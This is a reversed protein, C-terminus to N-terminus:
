PAGPVGRLRVSRCRLLLRACAGPLRAMVRGTWREVCSKSQRAIQGWSTARGNGGIAPGPRPLVRASSSVWRLNPSWMGVWTAGTLYRETPAAVASNFGL